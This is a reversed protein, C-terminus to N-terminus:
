YQWMNQEFEFMRAKIKESEYLVDIGTLYGSEEDKSLHRDYVNTEKVIYSSFNRKWFLDEYTRRESDNQTNYIEANAFYGRASPYYIWFLEKIGRETGDSAYGQVVPCIGIIRVDLVSRKKDFFWDEKILYYKVDASNYSLTDTTEFYTPDDPDSDPDVKKSNKLYSLKDLAEQRTLQTTFDDRDSSFTVISGEKVGDLIVNFFSRRGGRPEVPFFIPHNAKERIDIKRWIRRSWMVDAERLHPYAIVKKEQYAEKVYIGDLVNQSFSNFSISFLILILIRKM